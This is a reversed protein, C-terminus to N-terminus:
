KLAFHTRLSVQWFTLSKSFTVPTQGHPSRSDSGAGYQHYLSSVSDTARSSHAHTLKYGWLSSVKPIGTALNKRLAMQIADSHKRYEPFLRNMEAGIRRAEDIQGTFALSVTVVNYAGIFTPTTRVLRRAIEISERFRHIFMYNQARAWFYYIPCHSNLRM